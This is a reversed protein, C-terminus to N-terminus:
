IHRNVSIDKLNIYNFIIYVYLYLSTNDFYQGTLASVFIILIIFFSTFITKTNTYYKIYFYLYSITGLIGFNAILDFISLEFFRIYSLHGGVLYNIFNWKEIYVNVGNIFHINRYSSLATILDHELFISYFPGWFPKTFSIFLEYFFYFILFLILIVIFFYTKLYIKNNFILYIIFITNFLYLSKTGVLLSCFIIFILLLLSRINNSEYYLLIISLMYFYSATVPKSLIGMYGFRNNYAKFFDIQFILGLFTTIGVILIFWKLVIISNKLAEDNIVKNNKFFLYIFIPLMYILLLRLNDIFENINMLNLISIQSILFIIIPFIVYKLQISKINLFTLAILITAILYKSTNYYFHFISTPKVYKMINETIELIIFGCLLLPLFLHQWSLKNIKM